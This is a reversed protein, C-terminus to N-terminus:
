HRLVPSPYPYEGLAESDGEALIEVMWHHFYDVPQELIARFRRDYEKRAKDLDSRLRICIDKHERAAKVDKPRLLKIDQMAVKAVRNARRHLDQIEPPLSAVNFAQSEVVAAQDAVVEAQATQEAVPAEERGVHGPPAPTEEVHHATEQDEPEAVAAPSSAAHAHAVSSAAEALDDAEAAASSDRPKLAVAVFNSLVSLGAALSSAATQARLMAPLANSPRTSSCAAVLDAYAQHLEDATRQLPALNDRLARSVAEELARDLSKQREKL